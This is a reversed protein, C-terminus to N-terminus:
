GFIDEKTGLNSISFPLTRLTRHIACYICNFTPFSQTLLEPKCVQEDQM